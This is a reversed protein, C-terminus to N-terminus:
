YHVVCFCSKRLENDSLTRSAQRDGHVGLTEREKRKWGTNNRPGLFCVSLLPNGVILLTHYDRAGPVRRVISWGKEDLRV